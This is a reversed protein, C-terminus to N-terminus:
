VVRMEEKTPIFDIKKFIKKLKNQRKRLTEKNFINKPVYRLFQIMRNKNSYNPKGGHPLTVDFLILTGAPCPIRETQSYMKDYVTFFYRGNEIPNKFKDKNMEYWKQLTKHGGMVCHFGGDEINNDFLNLIGQVQRGMKINKANNEHVFDRLEKYELL